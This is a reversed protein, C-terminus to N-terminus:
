SFNLFQSEDRSCIKSIHISYKLNEFDMENQPHGSM